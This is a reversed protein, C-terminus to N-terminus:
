PGRSTGVLLTAQVVLAEDATVGMKEAGFRVGAPTSRKHKLTRESPLFAVDGDVLSPLSVRFGRRQLPERM